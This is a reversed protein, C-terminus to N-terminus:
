KLEELSRFPLNLDREQQRFQDYFPNRERWKAEAEALWYRVPDRKRGTGESLCLNLEVARTLWRQLTARHPRDFDPPWETLIDGRTLRQPADELVM